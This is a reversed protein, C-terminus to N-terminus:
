VWLTHRIELLERMRRTDEAHYYKLMAMRMNEDHQTGPVFDETTIDEPYQFGTYYRFQQWPVSSQFAQPRTPRVNVWWRYLELQKAASIAAITPQGETLFSRDDGNIKEHTEHSMLDLAVIGGAPDRYPNWWTDRPASGSLGEDYEQCRHKFSTYVEVHDVLANFLAYLLVDQIDHQTNKSIKSDLVYTRQLVDKCFRALLEKM